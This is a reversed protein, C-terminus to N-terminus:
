ASLVPLPPLRPVAALLERTYAQIPADLVAECRGQEVIRGRQMVAVQDAITEVVAINHTIFVCAVEGERGLRRAAGDTAQIDIKSM